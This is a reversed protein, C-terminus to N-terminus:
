AVVTYRSDVGTIRKSRESISQCRDTRFDCQVITGVHRGNHTIKRYNGKTRKKEQKETEEDERLFIVEPSISYLYQQITERHEGFISVRYLEGNRFMDVLFMYRKFM